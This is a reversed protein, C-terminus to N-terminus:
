EQRRSEPVGAEMEAHENLHGVAPRVVHTLCPNQSLVTLSHSFRHSFFPTHSLSLSLSPWHILSLSLSGTLSLPHPLSLALTSLSTAGQLLGTHFPSFDALSLCMSLWHSTYCCGENLHMQSPSSGDTLACCADACCAHSCLLCSLMALM